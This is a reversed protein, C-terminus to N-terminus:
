SQKAGGIMRALRTGRSLGDHGLAGMNEDQEAVLHLGAAHTKDVSDGMSRREVTECCRTNMEGLGIGAVTLAYRGAGTELGAEVRVLTAHHDDVAEMLCWARSVALYWVM